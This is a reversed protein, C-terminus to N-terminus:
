DIQFIIGSRIGILVSHNQNNFVITNWFSESLGSDYLIKTTQNQMERFGYQGIFSLPISLSKNLQYKFGVRFIPGFNFRYYPSKDLNYSLVLDPNISNPLLKTDSQKEVIRKTNESTVEMNYDLLFSVQIGVSGQFSIKENIRKYIGFSIPVQLYSLTAKQKVTFTSDFLSEKVEMKLYHGFRCFNFGTGIFVQPSIFKRVELGYIQSGKVTYDNEKSVFSLEKHLKIKEINMGQSFNAELEWTNQGYSKNCGLGLLFYLSIFFLKM